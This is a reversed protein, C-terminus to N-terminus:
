CIVFWCEGIDFISGIPMKFDAYGFAASAIDVPSVAALALITTALAIRIKHLMEMTTV